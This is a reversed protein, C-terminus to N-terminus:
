SNRERRIRTNRVLDIKDRNNYADEIKSSLQWSINEWKMEVAYGSDINDKLRAPTDGATPLKIAM